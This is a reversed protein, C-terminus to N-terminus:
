RRPRTSRISTAAPYLTCHRRPSRRDTDPGLRLTAVPVAAGRMLHRRVASRRGRGLKRGAPKWAREPDPGGVAAGPAAAPRPGPAAGLRGRRAAARAPGPESRRGAPDGAPEDREAEGRAAPGLRRLGLRQARAQTAARDAACPRGASEVTIGACAHNACLESLVGGIAQFTPVAFPEPGNAPVVSDLVLAEVHQPYREAYELAVKTGYSTGYLVLKEYGGAQRLAEIDQVSEQTTYDGRAPGLQLACRGVLEDVSHAQELESVSSLAPCSLPDSEGTGRQDFVLLDRSGLAPAIAKAIFEGLGLAAQGPGGALAVVASTSPSLGALKREVKLSVTGPVQGSRNLPVPVTACSFEAPASGTCPTFTLLRPSRPHRGAHSRWRRCCLPWFRSPPQGACGNPCYRCERRGRRPQSRQSRAQRGLTGALRHAGLRLTGRAAAPGGISLVTASQTVKGSVTVGPVYSYGHLTLKGNEVSAWGARLGGVRLSILGSINGSELAGLAQM